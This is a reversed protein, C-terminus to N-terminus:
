ATDRLVPKLDAVPTGDIAEISTVVIIEDGVAM